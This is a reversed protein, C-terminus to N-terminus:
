KRVGFVKGSEVGRDGFKWYSRIKMAKEASSLVKLVSELLNDDNLRL